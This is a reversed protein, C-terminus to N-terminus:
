NYLDSPASGFEEKFARSFWSPDNFGVEYAIESINKQTTQLLEKAKQLRISRIFIATSKDTISKLKRYIQSESLRMEKALQLSGFDPKDLNEHIIKIVQKLFKTQPNEVKEKLLSSLGNKELKGILKNRVLILQNLRTFLEEKIFPKALYADAGHTLGTLRDKTTVKATLLIIPIHDTREDSKLTACVEYGDKVPMMVDSIIIDPIHEYAMQIGVEGNLAYITQYKEKLCTKLYHAVDENDEIILVLPLESQSESTHINEEQAALAALKIPQEITIKAQDSKVAKNTVPIQVMFTSGKNLTSEVSITGNMLTVFGKTLSLGIGTGEQKGSTDSVQYFRDFLNPIDSHALGKGNDQVKIVFFEQQNKRVKTLHVIIKGQPPTFKVANSLLNSIISAMKNVDIDMELTEIESYVTLNIKKSEALSHFSESLYKVFPITDTQVLNLEMNGSEVKTLDLLENVLNLLNKGNRRIMELSKEAGDFHQNAVNTKLTEAMGLVVTLPTRFEHTINAYMKSKMKDLAVLKERELGQKFYKLDLYSTLSILIISELAIIPGGIFSNDLVVALVYGILLVISATLVIVTNIICKKFLMYVVFFLNMMAMIYVSLDMIIEHYAYFPNTVIVITYCAIFVMFAMLTRRYVLYIEPYNKKINIFNNVFLMYFLTAFNAGIQNLYFYLHSNIDTFFEYFFFIRHSYNLMVCLLYLSYFLFYIKNTLYYHLLFFIFCIIFIGFLSYIKFNFNSKERTKVKQLLLFNNPIDSHTSITISKNLAKLGFISMPINNIYFPKVFAINDTSVLTNTTSEMTDLLEQKQTFGLHIKKYTSNLLPVYLILSDTKPFQFELYKPITHNETLISFTSWYDVGIREFTINLTTFLQKDLDKLILKEKEKLHDHYVPMVEYFADNKTLVIEQISVPSKKNTKQSSLKFSSFLLGLSFAVYFFYNLKYLRM